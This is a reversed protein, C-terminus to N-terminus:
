LQGGLTTRLAALGRSSASRVGGESLGTARAIDTDSLEAVYRLVLVERQREPLSTMAARLMDREAGLLVTHDAPADSHDAVAHVHKRAVIQRRISSRSANVVAARVYGAAAGRDRISAWRRYVAAFADQVVDEAAVRDDVLGAALRLMPWWLQRYVSEFTPDAPTVDAQHMVRREAGAIM